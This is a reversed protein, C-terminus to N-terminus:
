TCNAMAKTPAIPAIPTNCPRTDQILPQLEEPSGTSALSSPASLSPDMRHYHRYYNRLEVVIAIGMVGVFLMMSQEESLLSYVLIVLANGGIGSIADRFSVCYKYNEFTQTSYKEVIHLDWGIQLVANNICYLITLFLEAFLFVESDWFYLCSCCLYLFNLCVISLYSVKIHTGKFMPIFLGAIKLLVFYLSIYMTSWFMGQMKHILPYVLAWTCQIFFDIVLQDRLFRDFNKYNNWLEKM